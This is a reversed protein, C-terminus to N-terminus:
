SLDHYYQTIKLNRLGTKEEDITSISQATEPTLQTFTCASAATTVPGLQPTTTKDTESRCGFLPLLPSIVPIGVVLFGFEKLFERRALKLSASDEGAKKDRSSAM